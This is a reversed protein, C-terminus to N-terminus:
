RSENRALEGGDDQGANQEGDAIILSPSKYPALGGTEILIDAPHHLRACCDSM